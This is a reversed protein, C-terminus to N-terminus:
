STLIHNLKAAKSYFISIENRENILDQQMCITHSCEGYNPFKTTSFCIKLILREKNM